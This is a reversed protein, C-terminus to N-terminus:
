KALNEARIGQNIRQIMQGERMVHCRRCLIHEGAPDAGYVLRRYKKAVSSTVIKDISADQINAIVCEHYYDQCCLFCNGEVGIYLWNIILPCGALRHNYINQAYEGQVAGARDITVPPEFRKGLQSGFRQNILEIAQIRAQGIGQVQIDINFGMDIACQINEMTQEYKKSGTMKVFIDKEVSPLNFSLEVTLGSERLLALRSKNLLTGNTNLMLKLRKGSLYMIRQEFYPDVTPENYSNISIYQVSKHEVIKDVIEQFLDMSMVNYPKRKSHVPCYECSWNCGSCLEVGVFRINTYEWLKKTEVLLTDDIAQRIYDADEDIKQFKIPNRCQKLLNFRRHDFTINEYNLLSYFYKNKQVYKIFVYPSTQLLMQNDM